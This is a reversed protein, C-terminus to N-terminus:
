LKGGGVPGVNISSTKREICPVVKVGSAVVVLVLFLNSVITAM